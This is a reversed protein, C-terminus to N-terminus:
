ATPPTLEEPAADGLIEDFVQDTCIKCSSLRQEEILVSDGCLDCYEGWFGDVVCIHLSQETYTTPENLDSYCEPCLTRGEPHDYWTMRICAHNQLWRFFPNDLGLDETDADAHSPGARYDNDDDLYSIPTGDNNEGDSDGDNAEVSYRDDEDSTPHNTRSTSM